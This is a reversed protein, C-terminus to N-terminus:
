KGEIEAIIEAKRMSSDVKVGISKAYVLLEAKTMDNLAVEEIIAGEPTDKIVSVGPANDFFHEAEELTKVNSVDYGEQIQRIKWLKLQKEEHKKKM